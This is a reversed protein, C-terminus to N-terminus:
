AFARFNFEYRDGSAGVIRADVPSGGVSCFGNDNLVAAAAVIDGYFSVRAAYKGVRISARIGANLFALGLIAKDAPTINRLRIATM